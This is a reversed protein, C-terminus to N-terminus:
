QSQSNNHKNKLGLIFTKEGNRAQKSPPTAAFIDEGDSDEDIEIEEDASEVASKAPKKTRKAPQKAPSAKALSNKRFFM